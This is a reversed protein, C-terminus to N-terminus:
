TENVTCKTGQEGVIKVCFNKYVNKKDRGFFVDHVIGQRAPQRPLVRQSMGKLPGMDSTRTPPNISLKYDIRREALQFFSVKIDHDSCCSLMASPPLFIFSTLSATMSSAMLNAWWSILCQLTCISSISSAPLFTFRAYLWSSFSSSIRLATLIRRSHGNSRWQGNRHLCAARESAKSASFSSNMCVMGSSSCLSSFAM